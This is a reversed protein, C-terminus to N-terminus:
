QLPELEQGFMIRHGDPTTVVFERMGWPKSEPDPLQGVGRAKFEQHLDDIGSVGVYAFYSHDNIQSAPVEDPCHGLMVRFDDRSLFCWGDVEFDVAFGLKDRYFAVSAALDKVALVSRVQKFEAM